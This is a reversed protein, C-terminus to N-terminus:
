EDIHGKKEEPKVAKYVEEVTDALPSLILKKDESLLIKGADRGKEWVSEVGKETFEHGTIIGSCGSSLIAFIAFIIIKKM